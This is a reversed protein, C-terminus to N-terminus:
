YFRVLLDQDIQNTKRSENAQEEETKAPENLFREVARYDFFAFDANEQVVELLGEHVYYFTDNKSGQKIIIDSPMFFSVQLCTVFSEVQRLNQGNIFKLDHVSNRIQYLKIFDSMSTSLHNYVEPNKVFMSETTEDYYDIVRNQIDEPLRLNLM